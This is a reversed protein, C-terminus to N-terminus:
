EDAADAFPSADDSLRAALWADGYWSWEHSILGDQVEFVDCGHFTLARQSPPFGFFPQVIQSEGRWVVVGREADAVMLQPSYALDPLAAFFARLYVAVAHKGVMARGLTIDELVGDPHWLALM